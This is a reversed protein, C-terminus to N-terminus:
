IRFILLIAFNSVAVRAVAYLLQSIILFMQTVAHKIKQLAKSSLDVHVQFEMIVLSSLFLLDLKFQEIDITPLISSTLNTGSIHPFLQQKIRICRM